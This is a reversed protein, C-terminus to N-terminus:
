SLVGMEKRLGDEICKEFMKKIEDNFIDMYQIVDTSNIQKINCDYDLIYERKAIKNPFESNFMGYNFNIRYDERNIVVQSMAKSLDEKNDVFYDVAYTLSKNVYNSWDFPNGKLNISNIYRLGFRKILPPKYLEFFVNLVNEVISKFKSFDNYKLFEIVVYRYTVNVRRSEEKNYFIWKTSSKRTDTKTDPAIITEYETIQEEKLLPFRDHIKEQFDPSLEKRIKLITPYDIRCIVNTLFNKKYKIGAM